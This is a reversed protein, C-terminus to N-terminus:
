NGRSAGVTCKFYEVQLAARIYDVAVFDALFEKTFTIPQKTKLDVLDELNTIISKFFEEQPLKTRADDTPLLEWTVYFDSPTSKDGDMPVNATVKRRVVMNKSFALM